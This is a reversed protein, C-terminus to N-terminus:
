PLTSSLEDLRRVGRRRARTRALLGPAGIHAELEEAEAFHREALDSEGFTTALVGLTSAMSDFVLLGPYVLKGTCPVLLDYIERARDVAGVHGAIMAGSWLVSSWAQHRPLHAFGNPAMRELVAHADDDRGLACLTFGWLGELGDPADDATGGAEILEAIEPLRQQEFRIGLLLVGYYLVADAHGLREGIEYQQTAMAEATDRDGALLARGSQTFADSWVPIGQGLNRALTSCVSLVADAERIRGAEVLAAYRYWSAFYELHPDGIAATLGALERGHALREDLTSADWLAVSRSVLVHALTDEDDIDRAIELAEDALARRSALDEGFVIETALNALLKARQARMGPDLAAIATRFVDALEDDVAGYNSWFGRTNALAAEALVVADHDKEARRAAALLTDRFTPLGAFKEATGLGMLVCALEHPDGGGDEILERAQQFWSVADDFALQSLARDGARRSYEVAKDVDGTGISRAYHYALEGLHPELTREYVGAVAEAVREHLRARRTPRLEDYLASRVLAHSFMYTAVGAETVVRAEVAEDLATVLTDRDFDVLRELVPLSFNRGVVAALQLVDNAQPSLRNLRRGIVERVGDPIGIETVDGRTTWRGEQEYIAGTERLHRLVEGTFLPNGDTEDYIMQALARGSADLEHGAVRTLFEEVESGDLGSLTIREVGDLRRMDALAEALPQARYLDTDRYTCVILIRAADSSAAIHRLMLLTPKAAWHLDDIVFLIPRAAAGVTLAGAVAEFLRYQSTEPDPSMPDPVHTLHEALRPVLRTLEGAHRGLAETFVAPEFNDVVFALAEVFPQYPVGLEDDCRGYLVTMGQTHARRALESSLRTKGIGPEGSVLVLSRRGELADSWLGILTDLEPHRGVFPFRGTPELGNPFPLGTGIVVERPEWEVRLTPLPLPLGKLELSGVATFRQTARSGAVLRVVEACLIESGDAKACLRAAEVVPTGHLDDDEFRADGLSIGIRVEFREVNSENWEHITQQVAVAAAIGDAAGLFAAMVGDGTTNVVEGRHAEVVERLIAHHRKHLVDAADDGLRSRQATSGVLDTFMVTYTASVAREM